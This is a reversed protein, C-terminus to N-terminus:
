KNARNQIPLASTISQRGRWAIALWIFWLPAIILGTRTDAQLSLAVLMLLFFVLCSWVMASGGPLRYHSKHHLDPHQKRYALWSFLIISWIFILLIASLTSLLTFVGMVSPILFLLAAGSFMCFGSLLLGRLPINLASLKGLARPAANENALGFLMRSTSFVGSNASSLASTLVVFNVIAAAAPLGALSFLGVFPSKDSAIHQWSSVSIICALSLVYFLLIRVPIANIAKPLNTEPNKTEAAAVGILEIGVFSFLAIQFGAIFGSIGHPFMTGSETLHSFSAKVGDPSTYGSMVMFFGALLLAVIAVVKVLAFWFEMEGFIRVSLMNMVLMLGLSGFAPIWLPLHPFWFQAYGGIVVVDGICAVVWSLWYTWGIFFGAWPGLYESAFDAFSNFRSSSLLLEGLARMVFFLFFGIIIYTFIISSGSLNITKGSGMFLGTGIAGGIAILQIHRNDLQQALKRNEVPAQHLSGPTKNNQM